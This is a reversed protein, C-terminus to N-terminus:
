RRVREAASQDCWPVTLADDAHACRNSARAKRRRTRRAEQKGNRRAALRCCRLADPLQRASGGGSQEISAELAQVIESGADGGQVRRIRPTIDQVIPTRLSDHDTLQHWRLLETANLAAQALRGAGATAPAQSAIAGSPSASQRSRCRSTCATDLVPRDLHFSIRGPRSGPSTRRASRTLPM